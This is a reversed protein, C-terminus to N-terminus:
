EGALMGVLADRTTKNYHTVELALRDNLLGVDVGLEIERSIEATLDPNGANSVIFGSTIANDLTVAQTQYTRM